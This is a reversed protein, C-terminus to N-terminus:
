AAVPVVHDRLPVDLVAECLVFGVRAHENLLELVAVGEDDTDVHVVGNHDVGVFTGQMPVVVGDLGLKVVVGETGIGADETHADLLGRAM